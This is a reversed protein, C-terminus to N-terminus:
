QKGKLKDVEKQLRQAQEEFYRDVNNNQITVARKSFHVLIELYRIQNFNEKNFVKKKSKKKAKAM